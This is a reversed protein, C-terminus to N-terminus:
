DLELHYITAIDPPVDEMWVNFPSFNCALRALRHAVKKGQRSTHCFVLYRFTSSAIKIDRIIHGFSTFSYDESNLTKIVLESDGEVIVQDFQLERALCLANRAALVEVMEVSSPLPITQSSAATPGSPELPKPGNWKLGLAWASSSSTGSSSHLSDLSDSHVASSSGTRSLGFDYSLFAGRRGLCDGQPDWFLNWARYALWLLM